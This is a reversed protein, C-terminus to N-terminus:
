RLPRTTLPAPSIEPGANPRAVRRTGPEFYRIPFANFAWGGSREFVPRRGPDGAGITVELPRGRGDYLRV